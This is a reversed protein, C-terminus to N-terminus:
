TLFNDEPHRNRVHCATQTFEGLPFSTIRVLGVDCPVHVNCLALTVAM